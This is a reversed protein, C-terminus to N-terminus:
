NKFNMGMLFPYSTLHVDLWSLKARGDRHSPLVYRDRLSTPSLTASEKTPAFSPLLCHTRHVYTRKFPSFDLGRGRGAFDRNAAGCRSKIGECECLTAAHKGCPTSFAPSLRETLYVRMYRKHQRRRLSCVPRLSTHHHAIYSTFGVAFAVLYMPGHSNIHTYQQEALTGRM